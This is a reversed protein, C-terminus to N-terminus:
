KKLLSPKLCIDNALILTSDLKKITDEGFFHKFTEYPTKDNLIPRSYSNVHNMVLTIDKQTLNDFSTGKPLVKRIEEHNKEISGKQHAAGPDCYFVKTRLEGTTHDCEIATPNSFESGNDGLLVSFLEKFTDIGLINTLNNFIDIVSQSDNTDRLYALMFESKVFHLTLLVKGGIVGVVSDMEVIFPFNNTKMYINFDNYTRNIRCKKDVKHILGAKKRPRYKVKRPLDIDCVSFMNSSTYNYLTKESHMICNANHVCIHHISQGKKILPSVVNDLQQLEKETIAIGTRSETLIYEYEEQAYKANYFRKCLTCSRLNKCGNCVYPPKALNKCIEEIFDECVTNCIKCNKCKKIKCNKEKCLNTNSCSYRHICANYSHGWTGSKKEIWHYRVEKSITTCDKELYNGIFKFSKREKLLIEIDKRESLTLHKYMIMGGIIVCFSM